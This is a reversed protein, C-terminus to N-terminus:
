SNINRNSSVDTLMQQKPGGANGVRDAVPLNWRSLFRLSCESCIFTGAIFVNFSVMSDFCHIPSRGGRRRRSVVRAQGGAVLARNPGTADGGAAVGRTEVRKGISDRAQRPLDELKLIFLCAFFVNKRVPHIYNDKLWQDGACVFPFSVFSFSVFVFRFSVIGSPLFLRASATEVFPEQQYIQVVCASLINM